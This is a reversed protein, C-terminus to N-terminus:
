PGSEKNREVDAPNKRTDVQTFCRNSEMVRRFAPKDALCAVQRLRAVLEDAREFTCELSWTPGEFYPPPVLRVGAPLGLKRVERAFREKRATLRPSRLAQLHRRIDHARQRAPRSHNKRLREIEKENILELPTAKARQAIDLIVDIIEEQVRVSFPIEQFLQFLALRSEQEFLTLAFGTREDLKGSALSNLIVTEHQLLTVYRHLLRASPELDLLPMIDKLLQSQEMHESIKSLVLAKEVPNLVRQALNDYIAMRLCTELPVGSSLVQCTIPGLGLDKCVALRRSGCVIKFLGDERRQLLPAQLLGVAKISLLLRNPHPGYTILCSTDNWDVEELQVFCYEARPM